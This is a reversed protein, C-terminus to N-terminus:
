EGGGMARARLWELRAEPYRGQREYVEALLQHAGVSPKQALAITLCRESRALDGLRAYCWAVGYNADPDRPRWGLATEFAVVAGPIDGANMEGYGLQSYLMATFDAPDGRRGQNQLVRARVAQDRALADHATRPQRWARSGYLRALMASLHSVAESHRGAVAASRALMYQAVLAGRDYGL